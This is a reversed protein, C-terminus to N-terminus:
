LSSWWDSLGSTATNFTEQFNVYKNWFDNPISMGSALLGALGTPTKMGSYDDNTMLNSEWYRYNLTVNTRMIDKGNYTMEVPAVTKPYAEYLVVRYRTNQAADYVIIEIDTTYDDYYSFTRSTPNQINSIWEDFFYKVKMEKDVYFSLSISDFLKEYPMERIEGYTRIPATAVSLGPLQTSECFLMLRNLESNGYLTSPVVNPRTIFVSYHTNKAMGDKVNSIFQSLQTTM